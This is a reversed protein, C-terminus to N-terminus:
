NQAEPAWSYFSEGTSAFLRISLLDGYRVGYRRVLEHLTSIDGAYSQIFTLAFSTGLYNPRVVNGLSDVQFYGYEGASATLAVAGLSHLSDVFSRALTAASPTTYAVSGWHAHVPVRMLIGTTVVVEAFDLNSFEYSASSVILAGEFTQGNILMSLQYTGPALAGLVISATASGNARPCDPPVTISTFRILISTTDFRVVNNISYNTCNYVKETSCSLILERPQSSLNEQPSITIRSDIPLGNEPEVSSKCGSCFVVVILLISCGLWIDMPFKNKKVSEKRREM